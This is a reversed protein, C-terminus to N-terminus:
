ITKIPVLEVPLESLSILVDVPQKLDKFDGLTISNKIDFPGVSTRRLAELHAFCGLDRGIDQALTRIYTGKSCNIHLILNPYEYKILQINFITVKRPSREIEIGERAYKYLPKGDKKLASHMPPIQEIQGTYKNIASMISDIEPVIDINEKTAIGTLDGSDTEVGLKLTALYSKDADLM